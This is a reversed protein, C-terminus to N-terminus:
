ISTRARKAAPAAAGDDEGDGDEFVPVTAVVKEATTRKPRWLVIVDKDFWCSTGYMLPASFFQPRVRLQCLTDRPVYEGYQVENYEGEHNIKHFVPRLSTMEGNRKGVIRRKIVLVDGEVEEGSADKWERTKVGCNSANEIYLERARAKIEAASSGKMQKKALKKYKDKFSCKVDDSDFAAGVLMEHYKRMQEFTKEQDDALTPMVRGVRNPVFKRLTMTFRAEKDSKNFKDRDGHEGLTSYLMALAPLRMYVPYQKDGAEVVMKPQHVVENDYVSKVIRCKVDTEFLNNHTSPFTTTMIKHLVTPQTGEGYGVFQIEFHPGFNVLVGPKERDRAYAATQAIHARTIRTTAKLEIFYDPGELDLRQIGVHHGKYTIPHSVESDLFQGACQLEIRLAAQYVCERRGGGLESFVRLACSQVDDM